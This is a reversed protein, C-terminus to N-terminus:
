RMTQPDSVGLDATDTGSFKPQRTLKYNLIRLGAICIASESPTWITHHIWGSQPAESDFKQARRGQRWGLARGYGPFVECAMVPSSRRNGRMPKSPVTMGSPALGTLQNHVLHGTKCPSPLQWHVSSVVAKGSAVVGDASPCRRPATVMSSIAM